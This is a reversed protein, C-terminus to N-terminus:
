NSFVNQEEQKICRSQEKNAYKQGVIKDHDDQLKASSDVGGLALFVIGQCNPSEPERGRKQTGFSQEPNDRL